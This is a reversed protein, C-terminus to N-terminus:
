PSATEIGNACRTSPFVRTEQVSGHGFSKLRGIKTLNKGFGVLLVGAALQGTQRGTKSRSRTAAFRFSASVERASITLEFEEGFRISQQVGIPVMVAGCSAEGSAAPM